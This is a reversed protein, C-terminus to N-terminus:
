NELLSGTALIGANNSLMMRNATLGQTRGTLTNQATTLQDLEHDLTQGNYNSSQVQSATLTLGAINSLTHNQFDVNKQFQITNTSPLVWIDGSKTAYLDSRITADTAIDKNFSVPADVIFDIFEGHQGAQSQSGSKRQIHVKDAIITHSSM